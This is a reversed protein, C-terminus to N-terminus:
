TQPTDILVGGQGQGKRLPPFVQAASDRVSLNPPTGAGLM